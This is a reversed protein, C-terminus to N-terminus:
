SPQSTGDDSGAHIIVATGFISKNTDECDMCWESTTHSITGDGNEDVIM